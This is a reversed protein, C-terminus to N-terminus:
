WRGCYRAASTKSNGEARRVLGQLRLDEEDTLRRVKVLESM